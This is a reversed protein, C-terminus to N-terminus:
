SKAPPYARLQKMLNEISQQAEEISGLCLRVDRHPESHSRLWGDLKQLSGSAARVLDASNRIAAKEEESICM